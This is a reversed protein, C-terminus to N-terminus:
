LIIESLFEVQQFNKYVNKHAKDSQFINIVDEIQVAAVYIYSKNREGDIYYLKYLYLTIYDQKGKNIDKYFICSDDEKINKIEGPFAYIERFVKNCKMIASQLTDAILYMDFEGSQFQAKFIKQERILKM